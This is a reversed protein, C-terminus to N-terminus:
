LYNIILSKNGLKELDMINTRINNDKSNIKINPVKKDNDEVIDIVKKM